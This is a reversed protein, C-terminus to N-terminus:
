ITHIGIHATSATYIQFTHTTSDYSFPESTTTATLSDSSVTYTGDTM